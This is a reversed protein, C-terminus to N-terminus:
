PGGAVASNNPQMLHMLHQSNKRHECHRDILRDTMCSLDAAIHATYVAHQTHPTM